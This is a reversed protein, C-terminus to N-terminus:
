AVEVKSIDNEVTVRITRSFIDRMETHSVMIVQPFIKRLVKNILRILDDRRKPSLNVMVEDLILYDVSVPNEGAIIQAVAVRVSVFFMVKEGMSLQNFTRAGKCDVLYFQIGPKGRDEVEKVEIRGNDFEQYVVSARQEIQRCIRDILQLPIGYRSWATKLIELATAEKRAKDRAKKAIEITERGKNNRVISQELQKIQGLSINQKSQCEITDDSIKELQTQLRQYEDGLKKHLINYRDGKSKFETAKLKLDKRRKDLADVNETHLEEEREIRSLLNKSAQELINIEEKLEIITALEEECATGNDNLEALVIELEEVASSWATVIEQTISQECLPCEATDIPVDLASRKLKLTIDTAGSDKQIKELKEKLKESDVKKYSVVKAAITKRNTEITKTAFKIEERRAEQDGTLDAITETLDNIGTKLNRSETAVREKEKVLDQYNKDKTKLVSEQRGLDKLRVNMKTVVANEIKLNSSIEADDVLASEIGEIKSKEKEYSRDAKDYDDKVMKLLRRYPGIKALKQLGELRASPLVRLLSDSHTDSLGFFATLMYMKEDMGLYDVIWTNAEAGKAVLKGAKRVECFGTGGVKRGRKISVGRDDWIEVSHSGDGKIRSMGEKTERGIGFYAYPAAELVASKGAGNEGVVAITAGNFGIEADEYPLFNKLSIKTIM